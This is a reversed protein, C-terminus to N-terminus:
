DGASAATRGPIQKFMPHVDSERQKEENKVSERIKEFVNKPPTGGTSSSGHVRTGGNGTAKLAPLFPSIDASAEIYEQAPKETVVNDAGKVKAIVTKQGDQGDRIEFEPLNQLRVFAEPEYSLIKAVERLHDGRKRRETEEKLTKHETLKVIVEDGSGHAKVKELLDADAKAVAVHGRPVSSSKATEIDATLEAVKATAKSKESLLTKNHTLVPHDDSLEPVYKGDSLKYHERLAEPVDDLKDYIKLM